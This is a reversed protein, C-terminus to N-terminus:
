GSARRTAASARVVMANIQPITRLVKAGDAVAKARLGGLDPVDERLKHPLVVTIRIRHGANSLEEALTYALADGGCIVFHPRADGGNQALRQQLRSMLSRRLLDRSTEASM